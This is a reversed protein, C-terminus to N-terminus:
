GVGPEGPLALAHVYDPADALSGGTEVVRVRYGHADFFAAVAAHTGHVECLVVPRHEAILARMGDLADVEAGEIDMKVFSPPAIRGERVLDDLAVVEVDGAALATGASGGAPEAVNLSVTQSIDTEVLAARAAARGVGVRLVEVQPLDNLGINAALRDATAPAPEFAYVRGGPGALSAAALTFFGINAGIDYVVAGPGIHDAFVQQVLPEITGLAYSANEGNADIRMGQAVGAPIVVTGQRLARALPDLLRGAVPSHWRWAVIRALLPAPLWAAIRQLLSRLM